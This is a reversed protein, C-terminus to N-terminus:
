AGLVPWTKVLSFPLSPHGQANQAFCEANVEAVSPGTEEAAQACCSHSYPYRLSPHLTPFLALYSAPLHWDFGHCSPGTNGPLPHNLCFACEGGGRGGYGGRDGM